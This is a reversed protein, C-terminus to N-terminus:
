RAGFPLACCPFVYKKFSRLIHNPSDDDDDLTERQDRRGRVSKIQGVPVQYLSSSPGQVNNVKSYEKKSLGLHKKRALKTGPTYQNINFFSIIIIQSQTCQDLSDQRSNVKAGIVGDESEV